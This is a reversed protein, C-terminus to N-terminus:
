LHFNLYVFTNKVVVKCQTGVGEEFLKFNSYLWSM